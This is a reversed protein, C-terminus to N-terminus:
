SSVPLEISVTTGLGRESEVYIEGNHEAIYEQCISLGLGTGKGVPKTTFFPNFIKSIVEEPIGIGTDKFTVLVYAKGNKMLIESKIQLRGGKPMADLANIIINLFVQELKSREAIIYPIEKGLKKDIQVGAKKARIDNLLIIEDIINNVNILESQSKSERSFSLLDSVLNSMKNANQFVKDIQQVYSENDKAALEERMIQLQALIVSLPTNLQHAISAAMQGVAEMKQSHRLQEEMKRRETIDNLLAMGFLEQQINIYAMSFDVLFESSDKRRAMLELGSVIERTEPNKSITDSPKWDFENYRKPILVEIPKDILEDRKYNFIELVKANVLTIIGKKDILVIGESASELLTRFKSESKHLEEEAKKRETINTIVSFSGKFTDTDDFIPQPSVMTIVQQGDKKNFAIEYISTIGQAHKKYQANLIKQNLEDHLDMSNRGILEKQSYELMECLKENVFTIRMGEDMWMLGENMTEVLMRYRKESEKLAEEAKKRQTIDEGSSLTGVIEGKDNKLITNQWAIIKQEGNKTLVSNEFYKVPKIEGKMLQRFTSKVKDKENKSIFYDFWNKGVIEKEKYGLVECGKRNILTVKEDANIAVFIVGAIDLYNKASFNNSKLNM